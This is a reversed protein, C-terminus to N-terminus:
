RALRRLLRPPLLWRLQGSGPQMGGAFGVCAVGGKRFESRARGGAGAVCLALLQGLGPEHGVIAVRDADADGLRRLLREPDRGPALEAVVRAAPWGAVTRLIVATQRARLLPSSFVREPRATVRELGAAARQFRRVGRASLPRRSDGPWRRPDRKRAPAHRVLLLELSRREAPAPM